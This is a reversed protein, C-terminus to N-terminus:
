WKLLTWQYEDSPLIVLSVDAVLMFIVSRRNLEFRLSVILECLTAHLMIFIFVSLQNLNKLRCLFSWSALCVISCRKNIRKLFFSHLIDLYCQVHFFIVIYRLIVLRCAYFGGVEMLYPWWPAQWWCLGCDLHCRVSMTSLAQYYCQIYLIDWLIHM